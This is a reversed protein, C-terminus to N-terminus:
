FHKLCDKRRDVRVEEPCEDFIAGCGVSSLPQDCLMCVRRKLYRRELKTLAKLQEKESKKEVSTM